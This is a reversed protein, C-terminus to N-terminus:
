FLKYFDENIESIGFRELDSLICYSKNNNKLTIRLKQVLTNIYIKQENEMFSSKERVIAVNLLLNLVLFIQLNLELDMLDM